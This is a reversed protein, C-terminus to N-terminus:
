VINFDNEEARSANSESLGLSIHQQQTLKPGVM